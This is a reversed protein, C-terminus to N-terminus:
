YALFYDEILNLSDVINQYSREELLKELAEKAHKIREENLTQDNLLMKLASHLYGHVMGLRFGNEFSFDKTGCARFISAHVDKNGYKRVFHEFVLALEDLDRESEVGRM